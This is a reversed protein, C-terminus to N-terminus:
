GDQLLGQDGGDPEQLALAALDSHDLRIGVAGKAPTVPVGEDVPLQHGERLLVVGPDVFPDRTSRDSLPPGGPGRVVQGICGKRVLRVGVPDAPLEADTGHDGSRQKGIVHRDPGDAHVRLRRRGEIGVVTLQQPQQRVLCRDHEGVGPQVGLGLHRGRLEGM